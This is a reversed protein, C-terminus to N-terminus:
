IQGEKQRYILLDLVEDSQIEMEAIFRDVRSSLYHHFLIMPIAVTLGAATTILANGIGEALAGPSVAGGEEQIQLIKYFVKIMGTVTGLLGLLPAIRAITGLAGLYRGLGQAVRQGVVEATSKVNEGGRKIKLLGTYIIRALPSSFDECLSVIEMPTGEPLIKHLRIIFRKTNAEVRHLTILREIIITVGIISCLLIPYMLVGGQEIIQAM